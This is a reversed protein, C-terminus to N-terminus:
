RYLLCRIGAPEAGGKKGDIKGKELGTMRVGQGSISRGGGLAVHRWLTDPDTVAMGALLTVGREFWLPALPVGPGALVMPPRRGPKTMPPLNKDTFSRGSMFLYQRNYLTHECAPCAPDGEQSARELISLLHARSPEDLESFFRTAATEGRRIKDQTSTLRAKGRRSGPLIKGFHRVITTPTNFYANLAATGLAAELPHWSRILEAMKGLRGGIFREIDPLFRLREEPPTPAIGAGMASRVLTWHRGILVGDVNQADPIASVLQGYIELRPSNCVAPQLSPTPIMVAEKGANRRVGSNEYFIINMTGNREIPNM